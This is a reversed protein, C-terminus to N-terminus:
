PRNGPGALQGDGIRFVRGKIASLSVRHGGERVLKRIAFIRHLKMEGFRELFDVPRTLPHKRKLDLALLELIEVDKGFGAPHLSGINFGHAHVDGVSFEDNREGGVNLVGLDVPDLDNWGGSEPNYPD